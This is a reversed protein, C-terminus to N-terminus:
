LSLSKTHFSRSRVAVESFLDDALAEVIRFDRLSIRDRISNLINSGALNSMGLGIHETSCIREVSGGSIQCSLPPLDIALFRDVRYSERAGLGL